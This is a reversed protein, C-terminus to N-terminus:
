RCCRSAEFAEPLRRLALTNSRVCISHYQRYGHRYLGLARLGFALVPRVVRIKLATMRPSVPRYYEILRGREIALRRAYQRRGMRQDMTM